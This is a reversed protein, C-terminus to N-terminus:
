KFLLTKIEHPNLQPQVVGIHREILNVEGEVADFNLYPTLDVTKQTLNVLRMVTGESYVHGKVAYINVSKPLEKSILSALENERMGVIEKHLPNNNNRYDTVSMEVFHNQSDHLSSMLEDEGEWPMLYLEATFEGLCQAQPTPFYGWDGMEGVSRLLTIDLQTNENSDDTLHIPTVEYEHLGYTTVTLGHSTQTVTDHNMIAVCNRLIQPNRPNEWYKSVKNSRQVWEYTSDAFHKDSAKGLQFRMTLRHDKVVNDGSVKIHIGKDYATLTLRVKVEQEVLRPSRNSTRQTIDIVKNQEVYLTEEASEPINLMYTMEFGKVTEEDIARIEKVSDLSQIRLQDHAERYIYENGIDGTDELIFQESYTRQNVKDIVDISGNENLKLAIYDNEVSDDTLTFLSDEQSKEVRQTGIENEVPILYFDKGELPDLQTTLQVKVYRAMYPRRFRDKPLDYHYHVGEDEIIAEITNGFSDIVKFNDLEIEEMAQYCAEPRAESFYKRDIEVSTSFSQTKTSTTTNWVQFHHSLEIVEEGSFDFQHLYALLEKHISQCIEEVKNFRAMMLQHIEDVGCGCISDHPYNQLLSKWAFDIKHHPYEKGNKQAITALPELVKELYDSLYKSRQKLYIRSSATNALTYWGDTEQSRLEGTVTSLNSSLEKKTAEVYDNFNSHVFTYDPYLERAIDLAQSLDKQVPQHDVGNMLLLQNTSAYKEMDPIKQEWFAKAEEIGVPIENGNSYWNAFLIGLTRSGDPGEWWMESFSSEYTAEEFTQNNFGTPKVGRGYAASDLEMGKLLQPTQGLVGFTDPFYGIKASNGGWKQTEQHGILANRVNSESSILFADQLIYFPGIILQKRDIAKQLEQRREPRVELYDDLLITQGDLHFYKFNPDTQFLDLVDDLLDVLLMHHAEYPLYWERDWHSHSIVHITKEM